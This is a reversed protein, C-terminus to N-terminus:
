EARREANRAQASAFALVLRATRAPKEVKPSHGSGPIMVTRASPVRSYAAIAGRSDLIRGGPVTVTASKTEGEVIPTNVALVALVAVLVGVLIKRSAGM